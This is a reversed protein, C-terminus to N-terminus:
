IGNIFIRLVGMLLVKRMIEQDNCTSEMMEKHVYRSFTVKIHNKCLDKTKKLKKTLNYIHYHLGDDM